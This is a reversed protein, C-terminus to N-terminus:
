AAEPKFVFNNIYSKSFVGSGQEAQHVDASFESISTLTGNNSLFYGSYGLSTIEDFLDGIDKGIHRQEIEILLNPKERRLLDVAGRIVSEEHGEVDIKVFGVDSLGEDDLRRTEVELRRFSTANSVPTLQARADFEIGDIVPINLEATGSRESLAVQRLTVNAGVSRRLFDVLDPNPEYAYVHRSIRGLFYTYIGKNAGIDVSSKAPDVLSRLLRLEREGAWYHVVAALRVLLGAPLLRTLVANKRKNRILSTLM